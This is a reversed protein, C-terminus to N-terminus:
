LTEDYQYSVRRKRQQEEVAEELKHKSTLSKTSNNLNEGLQNYVINDSEFNEHNCSISHFENSALLTNIEQIHKDTQAFLESQHTSLISLIDVKLLVNSDFLVYLYCKKDAVHDNFRIEKSPFCYDVITGYTSDFTLKRQTNTFDKINLLNTLYISHFRQSYISLAIYVNADFLGFSTVDMKWISYNIVPDGNEQLQINIQYNDRSTGYNCDYLETYFIEKTSLIFAKCHIFALPICSPLYWLRLTGDTSASLLHHHHDIFKVQSIIDQHGLCYNVQHSIDPYSKLCIRNEQDVTLIMSINKNLHIFAIDLLMSSHKMLCSEESFILQKNGNDSLLDIKYVHGNQDALLLFEDTLDLTIIMTQILIIRKFQWCSDIQVYLNLQQNRETFVLIHGNPSFKMSHRNENKNELQNDMSESQLYKWSLGNNLDFVGVNGNPFAIALCGTSSIKISSM